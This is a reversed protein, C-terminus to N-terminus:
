QSTSVLIMPSCRSAGAYSLTRRLVLNSFRVSIPQGINRCPKSHKSKNPQCSHRSNRESLKQPPMSELTPELARNHTPGPMRTELLALLRQRQSDTLPISNEITVIFQKCKLQFRVKKERRAQGLLAEKQEPTLQALLTRAFLSKPRFLGETWEM